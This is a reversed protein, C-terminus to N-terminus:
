SDLQDTSGHSHCEIVCPVRCHYRLVPEKYIIFVQVHGEDANLAQRVHKRHVDHYDETSNSDLSLTGGMPMMPMMSMTPEPAVVSVRDSEQVTTLRTSTLRTSTLRTSVMRSSTKGPRCQSQRKIAEVARSSRLRSSFKPSSQLRADSMESLYCSAFMEKRTMGLTSLGQGGSFSPSSGASGISGRAVPSAKLAEAIRRQMLADIEKVASALESRFMERLEDPKEDSFGVSRESIWPHFGKEKPSTVIQIAHESGETEVSMSKLSSKKETKSQTTHIASSHSFLRPPTGEPVAVHDVDSESVEDADNPGHM